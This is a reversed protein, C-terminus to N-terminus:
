RRRTSRSKKRFVRKASKKYKRSSKPISRRRSGGTVGPGADLQDRAKKLYKPNSIDFTLSKKDLWDPQDNISLSRGNGDHHTHEYISTGM